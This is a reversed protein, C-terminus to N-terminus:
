IHFDFKTLRYATLVVWKVYFKTCWGAHIGEEELKQMNPHAYPLNANFSLLLV